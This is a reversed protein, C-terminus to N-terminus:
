AKVVEWVANHFTTTTGAAGSIYTFEVLKAATTDLAVATTVQGVAITTNLNGTPANSNYIVVGIITGAAGNSRVTVLAEIAFPINTGIASTGTLSAPITGTLTTTGVRVRFTSGAVAGTASSIGSGRFRLTTGTRFQNAPMTFSLVVTEANAIAATPAILRALADRGIPLGTGGVHGTSVIGNQAASMVLAGGAYFDLSGDSIRREVAADTVAAIAGGPGFWISGMPYIEVRNALAHDTALRANLVAQSYDIATYAAALIRETSLLQIQGSALFNVHKIAGTWIELAGSAANRELGVDTGPTNGPGFWISGFPYIELRPWVDGVHQASAFYQSYDTATYSDGRFRSAPSSLIVDGNAAYIVKDSGGAVWRAENAASHRLGTDPDSTFALAPAPATGNGVLLPDPLATTGGTLAYVLRELRAVREQM